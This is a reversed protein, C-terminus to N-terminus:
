RLAPAAGNAAGDQLRLLAGAEALMLKRLAVDCRGGTRLDSVAASRFTGEAVLNHRLASRDRRQPM